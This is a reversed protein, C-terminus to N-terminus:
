DNREKKDTILEKMDVSLFQAIELLTTLNPQSRNCVYANVTSFSRGLKKALWTQSIGKDELVARIRNINKDNKRLLFLIKDHYDM